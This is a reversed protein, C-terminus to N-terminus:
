KFFEGPSWIKNYFLSEECRLGNIKPDFGAKVMKAYEDKFAQIHSNGEAPTWKIEGKVKVGYKKSIRNASAQARKKLEFYGYIV